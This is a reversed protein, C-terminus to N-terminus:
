SASLSRADAIRKSQICLILWQMVPGLFQECNAGLAIPNEITIGQADHLSWSSKREQADFSVTLAFRLGEVFFPLIILRKRLKSEALMYQLDKVAPAQEVPRLKLPELERRQIKLISQSLM